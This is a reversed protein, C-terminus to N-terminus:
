QNVFALKESESYDSYIHSTIMVANSDNLTMSMSATIQRILSTVEARDRFQHLIRFHGPEIMSLLSDRGTNRRLVTAIRIIDNVNSGDQGKLHNLILDVQVFDRGETAYEQAYSPLMRRFGHENLLGTADDYEKVPEEDNQLSTVDLFYGILGEIKGEIIMPRKFAMIIRNEGKRICKGVAGNVKIGDRLVAEEDQKFGLQQVHWGVEEDTKGIIESASDFGYYNLFYDNVGVFRRNRDKWFIGVSLLNLIQVGDTSGKLLNELAEDFSSGRSPLEGHDTQALSAYLAADQARKMREADSIDRAATLIQWKGNFLFSKQLYAMWYYGDQKRTRFWALRYGSDKRAFFNEMSRVSYYDLFRERDEPNVFEDAYRNLFGTMATEDMLANYQAKGHFAMQARNDEVDFVEIFDYIETLSRIGTANLVENFSLEARERHEIMVLLTYNGSLINEAEFVFKVTLLRGNRVYDIYQVQGTTRCIRAAERLRDFTPGASNIWAEIEHENRCGCSAMFEMWASSRCLPRAYDGEMEILCVPKYSHVGDDSSQFSNVVNILDIKNQYLRETRDELEFKLGDLEEKQLPKSFYYGQAKNCGMRKLLELRGSTEIGECITQTGLEKAMRIISFLITEAREPDASDDMTRLFEMDIKLVDFHFNKLVNFSSYGSGFDDLLLRYGSDRFLKLAQRMDNGSATLASETIEIEIDEPSLNRERVARNVISFINCQSFDFDYWSLNVSVPVVPLGQKMRDALDETVKRVMCTDLKWILRADELVPIFVAPSMFGYVPDDWRCLAELGAMRNNNIRMIPQYYAKIWGRQIAEDLHDTIYKKRGLESSLNSDYIRCTDGYSKKEYDCALRARDLALFAEDGRVPHYIGVRTGISHGAYERVKTQVQRIRRLYDTRASLVLFHEESMRAALDDPFASRITDAIFVLLSDGVRHGNRENYLKFDTVNLFLLVCGSDEELGQFVQDAIRRFGDINALGTLSDTEFTNLEGSYIVSM